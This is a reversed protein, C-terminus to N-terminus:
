KPCPEGNGEGPANATSADAKSAESSSPHSTAADAVRDAGAPEEGAKRYLTALADALSATDYLRGNLGIGADKLDNALKQASPVGLGIERLEAAHSFVEEPTGLAFTSGEKLVLIRDCYRALDDMTHSVMVVTLGSTHLEAILNLFDARAAPDLGAVPEDLILKSPRMALVGAFAVRRQQGGSLEFPSKEGIEDFDLSVQALSERVRADVEDSSLGMNRPGFAVDDYVTAAFLQHEPYQFVVGVNSRAAAAAKKDAIDIGDVLVRGSTPHILGNMHQILTSKGSGTHGAIGFFEGDELTFTINCLAWQKGEPNGWLPKPTDAALAAAADAACPAIGSASADAARPAADPSPEGASAASADPSPTLAPEGSARKKGRKKKAPASYSYSVQEFAIPM